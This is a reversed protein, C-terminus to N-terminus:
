GVSDGMVETETEHGIYELEENTESEGRADVFEDRTLDDISSDKNLVECELFISFSVPNQKHKVQHPAHKQFNM